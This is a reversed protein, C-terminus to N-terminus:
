MKIWVNDAVGGLDPGDDINVQPKQQVDMENTMYREQM